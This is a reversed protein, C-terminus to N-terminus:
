VIIEHFTKITQMIFTSLISIGACKFTLNTIKESRIFLGFAGLSLLGFIYTSFVGPALHITNMRKDDYEISIFSLLMGYTDAIFRGGKVKNKNISSLGFLYSENKSFGVIEYISIGHTKGTPVWVTNREQYSVVIPTTYPYIGPM